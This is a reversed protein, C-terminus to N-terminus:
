LKARMLFSNKGLPAVCTFGEAEYMAVSGTYQPRKAGPVEMPFAETVGGGLHKIAIVAAALVKKSLGLGRYDKDVFVCTIRWDPKVVLERALAQYARKRNNHEFSLAPGFQCWGVPIDDLYCVVGSTLGQQISNKHRIKHGDRDLRNFEGSSCIHFACWCGGQCGRHKAFMQEFDPWTEPKILKASWTSHAVTEQTLKKLSLEDKAANISAGKYGTERGGSIMNRKEKRNMGFSTRGCIKDM